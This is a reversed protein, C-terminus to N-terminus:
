RRAAKAAGQRFIMEGKKMDADVTLTDGPAIGGDTGSWLVASYLRQAPRGAVSWPSRVISM